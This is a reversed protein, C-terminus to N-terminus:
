CNFASNLHYCEAHLMSDVPIFKVEFLFLQGFRILASKKGPLGEKKDLEVM